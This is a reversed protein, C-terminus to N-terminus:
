SCKLNSRKGEGGSRREKDRNDRDDAKELTKVKWVKKEKVEKTAREGSKPAAERPAMVPSTIKKPQEPQPQAVPTTAPKNIERPLNGAGQPSELM